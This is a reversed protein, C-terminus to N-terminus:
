KVILAIDAATCPGVYGVVFPHRDIKVWAIPNNVDHAYELFVYGAYLPSVKVKKRGAKTEKESTQTPCLINTVEIVNKELYERVIHFKGPRVTWIYWEQDPQLGPSKSM